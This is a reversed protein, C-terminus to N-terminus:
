AAPRLEAAVTQAFSNAALVKDSVDHGDWPVTIELTTLDPIGGIRLESGDLLHVGRRVRVGGQFTETETETRESRARQAAADLGADISSALQAAVQDPEADLYHTLRLLM